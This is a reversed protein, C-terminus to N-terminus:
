CSAVFLSMVIVVIGAQFRHGADTTSCNTSLCTAVADAEANGQQIKAACAEACTVNPNGSTQTCAMACDVLGACDTNAACAKIDNMCPKACSWAAPLTVSMGAATTTPATTPVATPAATTPVAMPAAATTPAAMPAAATTPAAMPAAATTTTNATTTTSTTTTTTTTGM